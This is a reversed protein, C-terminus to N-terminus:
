KEQYLTKKAGQDFWELCESLSDTWYEDPEAAVPQLIKILTQEYKRPILWSCLTYRFNKWDDTSPHMSVALIDFDGFRYPRTKQGKRNKGGRTKQIEVVYLQVPPNTLTARLRKSVLMPQHKESRQLKVQIRAADAPSFRRRLEFDFAADAPIKVSEREPLIPLVEKEFVAEALIGRIGRKTLDSSRAIADLIVDGSIKWEVELPHEQRNVIDSLQDPCRHALYEIVSFLEAESCRELLALIDALPSGASKM